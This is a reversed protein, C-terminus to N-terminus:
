KKIFDKVRDLNELGAKRGAEYSGLLKKTDTETNKIVTNEKPYIPLVNGKEIERNVYETQKKYMNHRVAIKETIVPYERFFMKLIIIVKSKGQLFGKEHTHIIINKDYGQEQFFKLPISDVIGGDMLPVGDIEIPNSYIPLTASARFWLKDKLDGNECQRYVAEGTDANTCVVYFPVKNNKFAESNFKEFDTPLSKYLDEQNYYDGTALFSKLGKFKNNESFKKILNVVRKPQNSKFNCGFGAGASVGVIGDVEIGNESFVDLIGATFMCRMAGGELILGVKAM